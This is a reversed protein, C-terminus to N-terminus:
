GWRHAWIDDDSKFSEIIRRNNVHGIAFLKDLRDIEESREDAVRKNKAFDSGVM